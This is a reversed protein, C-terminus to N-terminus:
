PTRKEPALDTVYADRPICGIETCFDAVPNPTIRTPNLDSQWHQGFLPSQVNQPNSRYSRGITFGGISGSAFDVHRLTKEGTAIIVPLGTSPNGADPCNSSNRESQPYNVRQQMQNYTLEIAGRNFSAFGGHAGASAADFWKAGTIILTQEPAKSQAIGPQVFVTLLCAPLLQRAGGRAVIRHRERLLSKFAHKM